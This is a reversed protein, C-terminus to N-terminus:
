GKFFAAEIMACLAHYIRIHAEQIRYTEHYPPAITNDCLQKLKGGGEGTFAITRCNKVKAAMAANVINASNGSTSFCLLIDGSNAYGWVQQAYVHAPDCDNNFASILATHSVLSIAPLAGQLGQALERGGDAFADAFAQVDSDDLKRPLLFGKMLEGVIHECDSASGGNGCVMLKGGSKYAGCILEYAAYVDDFCCYLDPNDAKFKDFIEAVTM